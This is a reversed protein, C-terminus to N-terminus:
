YLYLAAGETPDQKLEEITKKWGASPARQYNAYGTVNDVISASEYANDKLRYRRALDLSGVPRPEDEGGSRRARLERSADLLRHVQAMADENTQTRDNVGPGGRSQCTEPRPHLEAHPRRVRLEIEEKIKLESAMSEM